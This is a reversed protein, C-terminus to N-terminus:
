KGNSEGKNTLQKYNSQEIQNLDNKFEEEEILRRYVKELRPKVHIEITNSDMNSLQWKSYGAQYVAEKILPTAKNDMYLRFITEPQPFREDIPMYKLIESVTPFFRNNKAYLYIATEYNQYSYKGLYVHWLRVLPKVIEEESLNPKNVLQLASLVKMGQYVENKTM